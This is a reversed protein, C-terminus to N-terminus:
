KIKIEIKRDTMQIYKSARLLTEDAESFENM